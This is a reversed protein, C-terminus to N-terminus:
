AKYSRPAPWPLLSLFCNSMGHVVELVYFFRVFDDWDALVWPFILEGILLQLAISRNSIGIKYEMSLPYPAPESISYSMLGINFSRM